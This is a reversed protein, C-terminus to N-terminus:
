IAAVTPATSLSRLKMGYVSGQQIGGAEYDRFFLYITFTDFTEPDLKWSIEQVSGLRWQPNQSFDLPDSQPLGPSIFINTSDDHAAARGVKVTNTFFSSLIISM